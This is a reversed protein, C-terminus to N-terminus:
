IKYKHEKPNIVITKGDETFFPSICKMDSTGSLENCNDCYYISFNSLYIFYSGQKSSCHPCGFDNLDKYTVSLLESHHLCRM